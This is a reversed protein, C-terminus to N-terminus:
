RLQVEFTGRCTKLLDQSATSKLTGKKIEYALPKAKTPLGVIWAKGDSGTAIELDMRKVGMMGYRIRVQISAAYVPAGDAGTVTFDASCDGLKADLTALERSAPGQALALVVPLALALALTTM